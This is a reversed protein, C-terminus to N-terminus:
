AAGQEGKRCSAPGVPGRETIVADLPIDHWQPFITPIAAFSYGVGYLRPRVAMAALTRDFFGGGFGLRFCERDFGVVPAIVIDPIVEPAEEGPVPIDWIGRVLRDGPSWARFVLPQGQAVVVPLACAGGRAAVGELFHRLNPEGKLPWYASVTQGEVPGIVAELTESIRQSYQARLHVPVALRSEILRAREAKRWRKVDTAQQADVDDAPIGLYDPDLEHMFCPPSAFGRPTEDGTTM